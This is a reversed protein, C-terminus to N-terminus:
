PDLREEALAFGRGTEDAPHGQPQPEGDQKGVEGFGHGFPAAFGLGLRQALGALGGLGLFQGTRVALGFVFQDGRSDRRM